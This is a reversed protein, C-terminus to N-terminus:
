IGGNERLSNNMVCHAVRVADLTEAFLEEEIEVGREVLITLESGAKLLCKLDFNNKGHKKEM